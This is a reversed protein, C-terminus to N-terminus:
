RLDDPLVPLGDRDSEGACRVFQEGIAVLEDVVAVGRDSVENVEWRDDPKAYLQREEDRQRLMWTPTRVMRERRATALALDRRGQEPDQLRPVLSRGWLPETSPVGFWDLLTAALDPPQVLGQDRILAGVGEPHVVFLPVHLSEEHLAEERPGAGLWGHEGLPFGRTATVVLLTDAALPSAAFADLCLALCEDWALVQGAYAHVYGLIEDPDCDQALERAPPTVIDPPVPDDEDALGRRLELPADWADDFARAHVWMLTPRTQEQWRSLAAALLQAMRTAGPEEASAPDDPQDIMLRDSFDAALPHQAVDIADTVLETAVGARTIAPIISPGNAGVSPDAAAHRGSWYSRYLRSLDCSDAYAQECLYALSALQNAAPTEVWTNGYPGLFGAQLRDFVLVLASKVTSM